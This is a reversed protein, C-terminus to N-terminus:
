STEMLSVIQKAMQEVNELRVQTISQGLEPAYCAVSRLEVTDARSGDKQTLSSAGTRLDKWGLQVVLHTEPQRVDSGAALYDPPVKQLFAKIIGTMEMDADGSTVVKYPTKQEIAKVVAETLELDIRGALFEPAFEVKFTPVHITKWRSSRPPSSSYGDLVPGNDISCVPVVVTPDKAVPRSRQGMEYGMGWGMLGTGLMVGFFVRLRVM